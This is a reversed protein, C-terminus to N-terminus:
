RKRAPTAKSHVKPKTQQGRKEQSVVKVPRSPTKVRLTKPKEEVAGAPAVPLALQPARGIAPAPVAARSPPAPRPPPAPRAPVPPRPKAVFLSRPIGGLEPSSPPVNLRKRKAEWWKMYERGLREFYDFTDPWDLDKRMGQIVPEVKAWPIPFLEFVAERDVVGAEVLFGVNDCFVALRLLNNFRISGPPCEIIFQDFDRFDFQFVVYQMAELNQPTDAMQMLRQIAELQAPTQKKM